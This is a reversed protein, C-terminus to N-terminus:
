PGVCALIICILMMFCMYYLLYNVQQALSQGLPPSIIPALIMIVAVPVMFISNSTTRKPLRGAKLQAIQEGLTQLAMTSSYYVWFVVLNLIALCNSYTYMMAAFGLQGPRTVNIANRPVRNITADIDVSLCLTLIESQCFTFSFDFM